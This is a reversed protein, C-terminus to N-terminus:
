SIGKGPLTKPMLDTKAVNTFILKPFYPKKNHLDDM